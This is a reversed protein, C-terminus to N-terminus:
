RRGGFLGGLVGRILTRGIERGITNTISRTASKTAAGMIEGWLGQEQKARQRAEKERLRAERAEARALREAELQAKRMANEEKLRAAESAAAAEERQRQETHASLMEYASERDLEQGYLRQMPSKEIIARREEFTIPGLGGEPPLILAREVMLPAGKRDLFSVLAEGTRLEGIVRETDMAPNARFTQAATRM